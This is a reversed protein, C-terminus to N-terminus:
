RSFRNFITQGYLDSLIAIDTNNTDIKFYSQENPNNFNNCMYDNYCLYHNIPDYKGTYNYNLHYKPNNNTYSVTNDEYIIITIKQEGNIWTDYINTKKSPFVSPQSPQSKYRLLPSIKKKMNINNNINNINNHSIGFPKSPNSLSTKSDWKMKKYTVIDPQPLFNISM